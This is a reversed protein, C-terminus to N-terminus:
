QVVSSGSGGDIRLIRLLEDGEQQQKQEQM